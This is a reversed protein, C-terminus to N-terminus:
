CEFRGGLQIEEWIERYINRWSKKSEYWYRLPEMSPDGSHHETEFWILSSSIWLLIHKWKEGEDANFGSFSFLRLFTKKIRIKFKMLVLTKFDDIAIALLQPTFTFLLETSNWKFYFYWIANRRSKSFRLFFFFFNTKCNVAFRFTQRSEVAVTNSKM